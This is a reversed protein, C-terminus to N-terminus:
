LVLIIRNVSVCESHDTGEHEGTLLKTFNDDEGPMSRSPKNFGTINRFISIKTKVSYPCINHTPGHMM